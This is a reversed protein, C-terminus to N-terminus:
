GLGPIGLGGLDLGAADSLEAKVKEAVARKADTCAAVILDQLMEVDEPDVVDSELQVDLVEQAGNMTVRVMGGGASGEARVATLQDQMKQMRDMMGPLNKMMEGFNLDM